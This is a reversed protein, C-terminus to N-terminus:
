GAGPTTVRPEPRGGWGSEAAGHPVFLWRAILLLTVAGLFVGLLALGTLLAIRRMAHDVIQQSVQDMEAIAARHEAAIIEHLDMMAAEREKSLHDLTAIREGEVFAIVRAIEVQMAEIAAARERSILDPASKAVSLADEVKPLIQNVTELTETASQVASRALPLTKDLDYEAAMDMALLEAQWRSQDLVQTSYVEMRRVLDDLTVVVSGAAATVSLSERIEWETVRSMASERAAISNGIPHEKAWTRALERARSVDGSHTMSATITEMQNELYQCAAVAIPAADGLAEKGHGEEFYDTMQWTLVWTDMIAMFVNPRFLTERLAPVAEIKWLLAERRVAPDPALNMIRDASEVIAGAFPGVLDRMRLRLQQLTASIDEKAHIEEKPKSTPPAKM